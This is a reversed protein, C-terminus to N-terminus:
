QTIGNATVTPMSTEKGDIEVDHLSAFIELYKKFNTLLIFKSFEGLAKGTYRPLWNEVIETKTKM